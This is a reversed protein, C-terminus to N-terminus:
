WTSQRRRNDWAILFVAVLVITSTTLMLVMTVGAVRGPVGYHIEEFIRRSILELGPPIVLFTAALDGLAVAFGILWGAALAAKRGPLAVWWLRGWYGAGDLAAADLTQRPVSRLAYWLIITVIPLARVTQAITPALISRDYLLNLWNWHAAGLTRSIAVGIVPGPLALLVSIVIVVLAAGIRGRCAIWALLTSLVLAVLAAVAGIGLSALLERHFEQVSFSLMALARVPSWGHALSGDPLQSVESGLQALLNVLPVGVLLVMLLSVVTFMPWRWVGLRFIWSPRTPPRADERLWRGVIILTAAIVVACALTSPLLGFAASEPSEGVAFGRFIAEAYTRLRWMDTVTFEGATQVGVWIAAAAISLWSRRLTVSCLVSFQTADLLAAEELQPQVRRLGAGVIMVVWPTAALTHIWIAGPWGELWDVFWGQQGFGAQWAATQTYLPLFLLVSVAAGVSKRLPLNTRTVLVALLTGAPLSFAWTWGVLFVTNLALGRERASSSVAFLVVAFVM